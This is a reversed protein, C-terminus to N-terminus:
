KRAQRTDREGQMRLSKHECKIPVGTLFGLILNNFYPIIIKM